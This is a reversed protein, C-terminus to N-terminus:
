KEWRVVLEWQKHQPNQKYIALMASQGYEGITVAFAGDALNFIPINTLKTIDAVPVSVLDATGRQRTMGLERSLLSCHDRLAMVNLIGGDQATIQQFYKRARQAMTTQAAAEQRRKEQWAAAPEVLSKKLGRLGQLVTLVQRRVTKADLGKLAAISMEDIGLVIQIADMSDLAEPNRRLAELLKDLVFTAATVEPGHERGWALTKKDTGGGFM